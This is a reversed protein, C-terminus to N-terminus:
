GNGCSSKLRSIAFYGFALSTTQHWSSGCFWPAQYRIRAYRRASMPASAPARRHRGDTEADGATPSCQWACRAASPPEDLIADVSDPSASRRLVALMRAATSVQAPCPGGTRIVPHRHQNFDFNGCSDSDTASAVSTVQCLFAPSATARSSFRISMSVSLTTSSNGAGSAPTSVSITLAVARRDGRLSTMATISVSGARDGRCRRRGVAAVAAGGAAPRRGAAGAFGCAGGGAVHDSAPPACSSQGLLLTSAASTAPVPRPPRMVLSSTRRRLGCRLGRPAACGCGGAGGAGRRRGTAAPRHEAVAGLLAHRHRAQACRTASRRTCDCDVAAIRVVNLSTLM